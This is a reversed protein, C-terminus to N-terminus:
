SANRETGRAAAREEPSRWMQTALAPAIHGSARGNARGNVPVARPHQSAQYGNWCDIARRATLHERTWDDGWAGAYIAVYVEAVQQTSLSTDKLAKFDAATMAVDIGALRLTDILSGGKNPTASLATGPEASAAQAAKQQQYRTRHPHLDARPRTREQVPDGAAARATKAATRAAHVRDKALERAEILRGEHEQWEHIVLRDEKRELFGVGDRRIRCGELAAMLQAADGGWMAWQAVIGPDTETLDGDRAYQVAACWVGSLHGVAAPVSTDLMTAFRKTKPHQQLDLSLPIWAM